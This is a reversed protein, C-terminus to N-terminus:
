LGPILRMGGASLELASGVAMGDFEHYARLLTSLIVHQIHKRDSFEPGAYAKAAVTGTLDSGILAILGVPKNDRNVDYLAILRADRAPNDFTDNSVRFSDLRELVTEDPAGLIDQLGLFKAFGDADADHLAVLDDTFHTQRLFLGEKPFEIKRLKHWASPRMDAHSNAVFEPKLIGIHALGGFIGVEALITDHMDDIAQVGM